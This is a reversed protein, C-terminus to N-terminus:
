LFFRLLISITIAIFSSILAISSIIKSEKLHSDVEIPDFFENRNQMSERILTVESQVLELFNEMQQNQNLLIKALDRTNNNAIRSIFGRDKIQEIEDRQKELEDSLMKLQSDIRASIEILEDRTIVKQKPKPDSIYM